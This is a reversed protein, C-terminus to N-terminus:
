NQVGMSERSQLRALAAFVKRGNLHLFALDEVKFLDIVKRALGEVSHV